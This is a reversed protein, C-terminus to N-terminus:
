LQEKLYYDYIRKIGVNLDTFSPTDMLANMIDTNVDKRHQGNPKSPNYTINMDDSGCSKLAIKAIEDVSL